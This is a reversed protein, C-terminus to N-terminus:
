LDDDERNHKVLKYLLWLMFALIIWPEMAFDSTEM